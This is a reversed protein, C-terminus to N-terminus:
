GREYVVLRNEAFAPKILKGWWLKDFGPLDELRAVVDDFGPIEEHMFFVSDATRPDFWIDMCILDTTLEDRKYAEIRVIQDLGVDISEPGRELRFGHPDVVLRELSRKFIPM